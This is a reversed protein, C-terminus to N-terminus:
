PHVTVKIKRCDAAVPDWFMRIEWRRTPLLSQIREPWELLCVGDDYFYESLGLEVAETEDAIRYFDFHYVPWNGRYENILTFTPSTIAQTVGLGRCIGQICTTKGAGLDGYFCLVDGVTLRQALAAGFAQTEQPNRTELDFMTLSRSEVM